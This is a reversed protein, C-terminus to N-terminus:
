VRYLYRGIRFRSEVSAGALGERASGMVEPLCTSPNFVTFSIVTKSTYQYSIVADGETANGKIVSVSFTCNTGPILNVVVDGEGTVTYNKPASVCGLVIIRYTYSSQYERPKAWTLNVATTNLTTATM